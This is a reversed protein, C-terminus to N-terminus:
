AADAALRERAAALLERLMAPPQAGSVAVSAGALFFPVGTVGIRQATREDGLVAELGGGAEVGRRLAAPDLGVAPASLVEICVDLDAVDRGDRFHAAYLAEMAEGDRDEEAALKVLGHAMRTNPARTMAEPRLDLGAARGVEAVRAFGARMAEASGFKQPYFDEAALGEPPLDPQLEFARRVVRVSGPPEEALAQRLNASGIWCWPCAIDAWLDLVLPKDMLHPYAGM